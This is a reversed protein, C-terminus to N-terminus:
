RKSRESESPKVSDEVSQVAPTYVTPFVRVGVEDKPLRRQLNDRPMLCSRQALNNIVLDQYSTLFQARGLGLKITKESPLTEFPPTKQRSQFNVFFWLKLWIFKKKRFRTFLLSKKRGLFVRPTIPVKITNINGSSFDLQTALLNWIRGARVFFSRQFTSTKCRKPIFQIGNASSVRNCRITSRWAPLLLVFILLITYASICFFVMHVLKHHCVERVMEM